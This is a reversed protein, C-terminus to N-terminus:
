ASARKADLALVNTDLKIGFVPAGKLIEQKRYSPALHGYHKEVMRTDAHGLNGAVVVLPTGNMVAHSAWTHRLHHFTIKRGINANKVADAMPRKQHSAGWLSDDAKRFIPGTPDNRGAVAAKFFAVGEPTLHCFYIKLKGKGKRTQLRVTGADPDFDSVVLKAIAGYRAGTLLGAQVLPRFEPNCANLLRTAEVISLYDLRVGDADDFTKVRKWEADSAIKRKRWARNLAARLITWLRNATAKRRRVAEPDNKDLPRTNREKAGERSRLLAPANAIDSLWKEIQDSTLQSCELHGLTPLIRAEAKCRSDSTNKGNGELWALYDEIANKVAYPGLQPEGADQKALGAIWERFKEQAQEWALVHVGDADVVDDATGLAQYRRGHEQSYHRGIWTGGKAGKRYGVALGESLSRWHPERQQKLRQRAARTDLKADKLTRAM